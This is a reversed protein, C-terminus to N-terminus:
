FVGNAQQVARVYEIIATIEEDIVDPLPKMDGFKWHHARSGQRVSRYFATDGHHGPHYVRHLFTPGKETGSGLQGHCEACHTNYAAKGENLEPTMKPEVAEAASLPNSHLLVLVPLLGLGCLRKTAM